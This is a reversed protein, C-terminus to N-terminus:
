VVIRRANSRAAEEVSYLMDGAPTRHAVVALELRQRGLMHNPTVYGGQSGMTIIEPGREGVLYSRGPFVPGGSARAGVSFANLLFLGAGGTAGGFIAKLATLIAFKAIAAVLQAIVQQMTQYVAQGFNKVTEGLGRFGGEFTIVRAFADGLADSVGSISDQIATFAAQGAVSLTEFYSPAEESSPEGVGGPALSPGAEATPLAVPGLGTVQKLGEVSQTLNDVAGAAGNVAPFLLGSVQNAMDSVAEVTGAAAGKFTSGLDGFAEGLEQRLQAARAVNADIASQPVLDTLGDGFSQLSTAIDDAGIWKAFDQLPGILWQIGELFFKRARLWMGQIYAVFLEAAVSATSIVGKWLDAFFTKVGEWNRYILYAGVALAAVAAVGLAIKVTMAGSAIGIAELGTKAASIAAGMGSLVVLLSGAAAAIGLFLFIAQQVPAPLSTFDDILAELTRGFRELLGTVNFHRNLSEGIRAAARSISERANAFADTLGVPARELTSFGETLRQIFEETSLGANLISEVSTTGFAAQVAEGILPVQEQLSRFTDATLTGSSQLNALEGVVAQLSEPSGGSLTIANGFEVLAKRATEADLGVAQLQASGKLATELDVGPLKAAQELANFEAAALQTNGMVATLGNKLQEFQGATRLSATGAALLPVTVYTSLFRGVVELKGALPQLGKEIAPAAENFDKLDIGIKIDLSELTNM